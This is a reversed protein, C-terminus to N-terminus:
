PGQHNGKDSIELAAKTPQSGVAAEAVGQQAMQRPAPSLKALIRDREQETILKLSALEQIDVPRAYEVTFAFDESEYDAPNPYVQRVMIQLQTPNNELHQSWEERQKSSMATFWIHHSFEHVMLDRLDRDSFEQYLNRYILKTDRRYAGLHHKVESPMMVEDFSEGAVRLTQREPDYRNYLIALTLDTRSLQQVKKGFNWSIPVYTTACGSLSLALLLVVSIRKVLTGRPLAPKGPIPRM